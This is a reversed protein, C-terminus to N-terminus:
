LLKMCLTSFLLLSSQRTGLVLGCWPDAVRYFLVLFSPLRGLGSDPDGEERDSAVMFGPRM